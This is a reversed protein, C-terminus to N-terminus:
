WFVDGVISKDVMLAAAQGLYAIILAPYVVGITATQIAPRSFHGMDAYLAEAGTV